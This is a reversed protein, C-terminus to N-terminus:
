DPAICYVQPDHTKSEFERAQRGPMRLAFEIFGISAVSGARALIHRMKEDLMETLLSSENRGVSASVVRKKPPSRAGNTKATVPAATKASAPHEDGATRWCRSTERRVHQKESEGANV